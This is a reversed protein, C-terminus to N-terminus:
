FSWRQKLFVKTVQKWNDPSMCSCCWCVVASLFLPHPHCSKLSGGKERNKYERGAEQPPHWWWNFTSTLLLFISIVSLISCHATSCSSFSLWHAKGTCICRNKFIWRRLCLAIDLSSNQVNLIIVTFCITICVRHDKWIASVVQKIVCNDCGLFTAHAAITGHCGCVMCWM